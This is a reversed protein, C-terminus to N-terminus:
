LRIIIGANASITFEKYMYKKLIEEPVPASVNLDYNPYDAIPFFINDIAETRMRYQRGFNGTLSFGLFKAKDFPFIAFGIGIPTQSNFLNINETNISNTKFDFFPINLLFNFKDEEDLPFVIVFSISTGNINERKEVVSANQQLIYVYEGQFNHFYSLTMGAKVNWKKFLGFSSNEEKQSYCTCIGFFLLTLYFNKM